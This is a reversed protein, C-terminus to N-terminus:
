GSPTVLWRKLRQIREYSQELRSRTLSGGRAAAMLQRYADASVFENESCLLVDAGARVARTAADAYQRPGPASMTDTIVVGRFGLQKRLLDSVIATSLVAPLRSSDFAPYVANSVMVIQVDDAIAVKFPALRRILENRSTTIVVVRADTNASATGLGPFHKATAAVRRQQMGVAFAPGLRSVVSPDQSFARTGLFSSSSVPVDLVPALDVNIGVRRLYTATARGSQRVAEANGTRGMAAASSIPPGQPLRRVLGGEQDVAVLLPPNGGQTAARQLQEVVRKLDAPSTINQSFLIIGGLEGHRIRSVLSASPTPGTM